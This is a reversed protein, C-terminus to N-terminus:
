GKYYEILQQACESINWGASKMVEFNDKRDIESLQIIKEAWNDKSANLSLTVAEDTVIVEDTVSDSMLVPLGAAQAEIVSVPLGEDTSPFLFVDAGQLLENVNTRLGLFMVSDTIELETCLKNTEDTPVAGILMLRSDPRKKKINAFVKLIYPHNKQLIDTRGIHVVVLEDNLGFDTRVKNRVDPNFRYKECEVANKIVTYDKGFWYNGAAKSCAFKKDVLFKTPKNLIENRKLNKTKLSFLTSHCHCCIKKIGNKKASPAIFVTFHPAHIHLVDWEGKHEKFFKDTNGKLVSKPSPTNIKFVRGGLAEIEAQKTEPKDAFYVVDFKIDDTMAKAYNLIVSMIGNSIGIDPIM